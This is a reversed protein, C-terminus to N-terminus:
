QKVSPSNVPVAQSRGPAQNKKSEEFFRFVQLSGSCSRPTIKRQERHWPEARGAERYISEREFDIEGMLKCSCLLVFNQLGHGHMGVSDDRKCASIGVGWLKGGVM